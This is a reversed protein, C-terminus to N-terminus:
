LIVPVVMAFVLPKSVGSNIKARAKREFYKRFGKTVSGHNLCKSMSCYERSTTWLELLSLIYGFIVKYKRLLLHIVPNMSSYFFAVGVAHFRDSHLAKGSFHTVCSPLITIGLAYDM